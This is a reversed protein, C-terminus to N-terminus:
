TVLWRVFYYVLAGSILSSIIICGFLIRWNRAREQQDRRIGAIIADVGAQTPDM